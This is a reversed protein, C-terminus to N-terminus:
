FFKHFYSEKVKLIYIKVLLLVLSNVNKSSLSFESAFKKGSVTEFRTLGMRVTLTDMVPGNEHSVSPPPILPIVNSSTKM